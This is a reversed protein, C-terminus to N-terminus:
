TWVNACHALTEFLMTTGSRPAGVIIVPCRFKWQPTEPVDFVAARGILSRSALDNVRVASEEDKVLVSADWDSGQRLPIIALSRGTEAIENLIVPAQSGPSFRLHVIKM